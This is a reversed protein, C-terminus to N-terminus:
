KRARAKVEKVRIELNRLLTKLPKSGERSSGKVSHAVLWDEMETRLARVVRTAPFEKDLEGLANHQATDKLDQDALLCAATPCSEVMKDDIVGSNLLVDFLKTWLDVNFNRRLMPKVSIRPRARKGDRTMGTPVANGFMGMAFEGGRRGTGSGAWGTEKVDMYKGFILVAAIGAAGYWDAEYSWPCGNRIEWCEVSPDGEKHSDKPDRSDGFDFLTGSPLSGIQIARGFDLAKIGVRGWGAGGTPDYQPNWADSGLRGAVDSSSSAWRVMFNDAKVDGHIFGSAHWAEINRLVEVTWFMALLEDLGGDPYSVNDIGVASNVAGLLTGGECFELRLWGEDQFVHCARPEVVSTEFRSDLRSRLTTLVHYEWACPGPPVHVKLAFTEPDKMDLVDDDDDLVTQCKYVAAFGGQGLKATIELVEVSQGSSPVEIEIPSQSVGAEKRNKAFHRELNKALNITVTPDEFYREDLIAPSDSMLTRWLSSDMPDIVAASIASETQEAELNEMSAREEEKNSGQDEEELISVAIVKTLSLTTGTTVDHNFTRDGVYSGGLSSPRSGRSSGTMSFPIASAMTFSSNSRSATTTPARTSPETVETIPTLDPRQAIRFDRQDRRLATDSKYSSVVSDELTPSVSDVDGSQDRSASSAPVDSDETSPMRVPATKPDERAQLVKNRPKGAASERELMNQTSFREDKRQVGSDTFLLGIRPGPSEGIVKAASREWKAGFGSDAVFPNDDEDITTPLTQASIPLKPSGTTARAHTKGEVTLASKRGELKKQFASAGVVSPIDIPHPDQFVPLKNRRGTTPKPSEPDQFVELKRIVGPLARGSRSEEANDCFIDFSKTTKRIECRKPPIPPNSDLLAEYVPVVGDVSSTQYSEPDKLARSFALVPLTDEYRECELEGSFMMGIDQMALRTNITPSAANRALKLYAFKRTAENDSADSDDDVQESPGDPLHEVAGFEAIKQAALWKAPPTIAPLYDAASAIPEGMPTASRVSSARSMRSSPRAGDRNSGVLLQADILGVHEKTREADGRRVLPVDDNEGDSVYAYKPHRARVEERSEASEKAGIQWAIPDFGNPYYSEMPAVYHEPLKQKTKSSGDVVGGGGTSAASRSSKHISSASREQARSAASTVISADRTKSTSNAETVGAPNGLRQGISSAPLKLMDLTPKTSREHPASDTASNLNPEDSWVQIRERVPATGGDPAERQELPMKVGRWSAIDKTNEKVRHKATGLEPWPGASSASLTATSAEATGSPDQFVWKANVSATAVNASSSRSMLNHGVGDTLGAGTSRGRQPVQQGQLAREANERDARPVRQQVAGVPAGLVSRVHAPEPEPELGLEERERRRRERAEQRANFEALLRPLRAVPRARRNIGLELTSKALPFNGTRELMEAYAQYFGALEQCVGRASMWKYVDEPDKVLDAYMIWLNLFDVSTRKYQPDDKFRELTRELASLLGSESNNGQPYHDVIWRILDLHPKLPDVHDALEPTAICAELAARQAALSNSPTSPAVVAGAPKSQAVAAAGPDKATIAATLATAKRGSKLPLINEKVAEIINASPILSDSSPNPNTWLDSELPVSSQTEM